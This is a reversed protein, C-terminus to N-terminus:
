KTTKKKIRAISQDVKKADMQDKHRKMDDDLKRMKLIYDDKRKQIDLKFKEAELPDQIGDDSMEEPQM